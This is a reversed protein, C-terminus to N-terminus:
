QMNVGAEAASTGAAFVTLSAAGTLLVSLITFIKKM